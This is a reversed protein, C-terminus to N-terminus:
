QASTVFIILNIQQDVSLGMMGDDILETSGAEFAGRSIDVANFEDVQAPTTVGSYTLGSAGGGSDDSGGGGGGGCGAFVFAFGIIIFLLLKNYRIM